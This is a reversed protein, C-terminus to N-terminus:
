SVAEQARAQRLIQQLSRKFLDPKGAHQAAMPAGFSLRQWLPENKYLRAVSEAFLVPDTGAVLCASYDPWGLQEAVDAGLVAPLGHLAARTVEYPLGASVRSPAILVRHREYLAELDKAPVIPAIRAYRAMASLDLDDPKYGAVTLTVEPPLMADLHPLVDRVFWALGDHAADGSAHIPTAFLLGARRDFDAVGEIIPAVHGLVAVNDFGISRILAADHDQLAVITQCFWADRLEERLERALLAPDDLGGVRRRAHNEVSALWRADLVIGESPLVAASEHLNGLIRHLTDSGAIWINDFCGAREHLFRTLEAHGLGAMVEVGQPLDRETRSFEGDGGDLAYVSVRAGWSAMTAIVDCDRAFLGGRRRSPMSAGVFLVRAGKGRWRAREQLQPAQPPRHRLVAGFQRQLAARGAAPDTDLRHRPPPAEHSLFSPEYCIQKGHTQVGLGIAAALCAPDDFGEPIGTARLAATEVLLPGSGAVDCLRSFAISPAFSAQGAGYVAITGDRCVVGGAAGVTLDDRLMQGTVAGVGGDQLRALAADLAGYALRAGPRLLLVAPARAHDLGARWWGGFGDRPSVRRHTVGRFFRDLVGTEDASEADTVIVEIRGGGGDYLSALTEILISFDNRSPVIVSVVPAHRVTFDLPGRVLLPLMTRAHSALLERHQAPSLPPADQAADEPTGQTSTAVWHAFIDRFVGRRVARVVDPRVRYAALDWHEVPKRGENLGFRLFHEYGNRLGGNAVIAAVDPNSAAYFAESFFPNPDFATPTPNTLYHHLPHTYEGRALAEAVVPYQALYWAPDFYWSTRLAAAGATGLFFAFGGHGHAGRLQHAECEARFLDPDFFPHGVRWARDGETLYHDYGNAFGAERVSRPSLDPNVRFYEDESFLWHPARSRFGSECYHMFGSDFVGDRVGSAVDPNRALYFDEDFLSSPVHGLAAGQERWFRAIAADDADAVGAEQLAQAYRRRYWALDLHAWAPTHGNDFAPASFLSGQPAIAEDFTAM